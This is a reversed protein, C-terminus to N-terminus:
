ELPLPCSSRSGSTSLGLGEAPPLSTVIVACSSAFLDAGNSGYTRGVADIVVQTGPAAIGRAGQCMAYESFLTGRFDCTSIGGTVPRFTAQIEAPSLACDETYMIVQAYYSIVDARPADSYVFADAGIIRCLDPDTPDTPQGSAGPTGAPGLLVFTSATLVLLAALSGPSRRGSRRSGM